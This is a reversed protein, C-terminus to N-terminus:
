KRSKQRRSYGSADGNSLFARRADDTFLHPRREGNLLRYIHRRSVGVQGVIDKIRVGALVLAQIKLVDADTVSTRLLGTRSAHELNQKRSVWELNTYHNNTKNGDIHNVTLDKAYGECYAMAVLRHATITTHKNVGLRLKARLYGDNNKALSVARGDLTFVDGFETVKHTPYQPIVRM